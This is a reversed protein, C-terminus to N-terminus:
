AARRARQGHLYLADELLEATGPAILADAVVLDAHDAFRDGAALGVIVETRNVLTTAVLCVRGLPDFSRLRALTLDDAQLGTRELLARLGPGDSAHPLRLRVRRGNPLTTSADLRPM